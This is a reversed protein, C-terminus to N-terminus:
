KLLKEIEEPTETVELLTSEGAISVYSGIEARVNKGWRAIHAPNLYVTEGGKRRTLKIIQNTM